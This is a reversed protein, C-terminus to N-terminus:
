LKQTIQRFTGRVKTSSQISVGCLHVTKTCWYPWWIDLFSRFNVKEKLFSKRKVRSSAYTCMFNSYKRFSVHQPVLFKYLSKNKQKDEVQHLYSNTFGRQKSKVMQHCRQSFWRYFSIFNFAIITFFNEVLPLISLLEVADIM